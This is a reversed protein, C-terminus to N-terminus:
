HGSERHNQARTKRSRGLAIHRTLLSSSRDHSRVVFLGTKVYRSVKEVDSTPQLGDNTPLPVSRGKFLCIRVSRDQLGWGVPAQDWQHGNKVGNGLMGSRKLASENHPAQTSWQDAMTATAPYVANDICLDENNTKCLPVISCM